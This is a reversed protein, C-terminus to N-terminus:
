FNFTATSTNCSRQYFLLAKPFSAALGAPLQTIHGTIVVAPLPHVKLTVKLLAQLGKHRWIQATAHVNVVHFVHPYNTPPPAAMIRCMNCITDKSSNHLGNTFLSSMLCSNGLSLPGGSIISSSSVSLYLSYM